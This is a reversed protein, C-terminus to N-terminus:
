AADFNENLYQDDMSDASRITDVVGDPRIIAVEPRGRGNIAFIQDMGYAGVDLFAILDGPGTSAPLERFGPQHILTKELLERHAALAPETSFLRRITAEGEVDYFSDGNDCLPGVMRFLATEHADLRNATLAHFYWRYTFAEMLTHYGADLLLWPDAGRHKINEVRALLVATDCVMSRGPEIVVERDRGLRDHLPPLVAAAIDGHSFDARYYGLDPSQDNYKVYNMPFGGGVNIHDLSEGRAAEVREVQEAIFLGAEAYSSKDTIQSGIHVHLGALHVHDGMGDLLSLCRDMDEVVMGFKTDSSATEIGPATGSELEPVLRLAINAKLEHEVAVNGIRELEFVSDVNIAKIAPSMAQKLEDRSKAVGNLVIDKNAFGARRARHLEGASNVELSLGERRLIDLVAMLSCAKSAYAVKTNAHVDQFAASMVRANEAIKRESYVYLPTGREETLQVLDIGDMHLHGGQAELYGQTQWPELNFAKKM